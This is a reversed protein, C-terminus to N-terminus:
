SAYSFAFADLKFPKEKMRPKVEEKEKEKGKDEGTGEAEVGEAKGEGIEDEEKGEGEEFVSQGELFRVLWEKLSSQMNYSLYKTVWAYAACSWIRRTHQASHDSIHLTWMVNSANVTTADISPRFPQPPVPKPDATSSATPAPGPALPRPAPISNPDPPEPNAFSSLPRPPTGFSDGGSTPRSLPARARSTNSTYPSISPKTTSASSTSTSSLAPTPDLNTSSSRRHAQEQKQPEQSHKKPCLGIITRNLEVMAMTLSAFNSSSLHDLFLSAITILCVLQNVQELRQLPTPEASTSTSPIPSRTLIIHLPTDPALYFSLPDTTSSLSTAEQPRSSSARSDSSPKRRPPALHDMTSLPKWLEWVKALFTNFESTLGKLDSSDWIYSDPSTGYICEFFVMVRSLLLSRVALPGGTAKLIRRVAMYHMGATNSAGTRRDLTGLSIISAILDDKRAPSLPKANLQRVHKLAEGKHSVMAVELSKKEAVGAYKGLSLRYLASRALAVQFCAPTTLAISFNTAVPHPRLHPSFGYTVKPYYLLYFTVLHEQFRDLTVPLAAFPDLRDSFPLLSYRLLQLIKQENTPELNTSAASQRPDLSSQEPKVPGSATSTSSLLDETAEMGSPDVYDVSSLAGYQPRSITSPSPPVYSKIHSSSAGEPLLSAPKWISSHHEAGTLRSM